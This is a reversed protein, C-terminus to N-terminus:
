DKHGFLYAGILPAVGALVLGLLFAAAQMAGSDFRTVGFICIPLALLLGALGVLRAGKNPTVSLETSRNEQARRSVEIRPAESSEKVLLALQGHIYRDGAIRGGLGRAHSSCPHSGRRPWSSYGFGRDRM